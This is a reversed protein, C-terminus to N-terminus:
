TIIASLLNRKSRYDRGVQCSMTKEKDRIENQLQFDDRAFVMVITEALYRAGAVRTRVMMEQKNTSQLTYKLIVYKFMDIEPVPQQQDPYAELKAL